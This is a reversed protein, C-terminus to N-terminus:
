DVGVVEGLTREGAVELTDGDVIRAPGSLTDALAIAPALVLAFALIAPRIMATLDVGSSGMAALASWASNSWARLGPM